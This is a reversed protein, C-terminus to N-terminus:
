AATLSTADPPGTRFTTRLHRGHESVSTKTARLAAADIATRVQFPAGLRLLRAHAGHLSSGIAARWRIATIGRSAPVPAIVARLLEAFTIDRLTLETEGTYPDTRTLLTIPFDSSFAAPARLGRWQCSREMVLRGDAVHLEAMLYPTFVVGRIGLLVSPDDFLAAIYREQDLAVHATGSLAMAVPAARPPPAGANLCVRVLGGAEAVAFVAAKYLPPFRQDSKMNPIDILKGTAGDYSWGHYGCQLWGNDRVRGLSLPARRHPCRDELARAVGQRDRWLVVPQAGIDVSLPKQTTVEESRALAWWRFDTESHM